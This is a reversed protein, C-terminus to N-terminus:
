DSLSSLNHVDLTTLVDIGSQLLVQVDQWRKQRASGPANSHALEDVVCVRPSRQLVAEVDLEESTGIRHTIRALPIVPLGAARDRIDNRGHADVFGVVLDTGNAKLQRAAELMQYTKGVGPAYGLYIKLRGGTTLQTM